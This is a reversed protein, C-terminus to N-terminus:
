DSRYVRLDKGAKYGVMRSTSAIHMLQRVFAVIMMECDHCVTLGESGTVYLDINRGEDDKGCIRCNVISM